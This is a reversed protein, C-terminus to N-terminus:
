NGNQVLCRLGGGLFFAIALCYLVTVLKIFEVCDHCIAYYAYICGHAWDGWLLDSEHFPINCNPNLPPLNGHFCFSIFHLLIVLKSNKASLHIDSIERLNHSIPLLLFSLLLLLPLSSFLLYISNILLYTIPFISFFFYCFFGTSEGSLM